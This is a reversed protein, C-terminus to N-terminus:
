FDPAIAAKVRELDENETKERPALRHAEDIIVLCNLLEDKKFVAEAKQTIRELFEGILVLKMMDNWFIDDPINKESLDIIVIDQNTKNKDHIKAVLDKIKVKNEGDFRFLNAIRAWM